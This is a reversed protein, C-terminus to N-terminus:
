TKICQIFINIIAHLTIISHTSYLTVGVVIACKILVHLTIIINHACTSYRVELFCMKAHWDECVPLLGDFRQESTESNGRIMQAGRIRAVTLQDGGVLLTTFKKDEVTIVSAPGEENPVTFTREVDKSPVYM